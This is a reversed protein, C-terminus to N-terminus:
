ASDDSMYLDFVCDLELGALRKSLSHPLVFGGQGNASSFRCFVEIDCKAAALRRIEQEKSEALSVVADLHKELPQGEDVDSRLLWLSEERRRPQPSRASLLEGVEHSESPSINLERSIDAASMSRSAIRLTASSSKATTVM